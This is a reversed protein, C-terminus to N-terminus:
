ILRKVWSSVEKLEPFREGLYQTNTRSSGPACLDDIGKIPFSYGLFKSGRDKFLSTTATAITKFKEKQNTM